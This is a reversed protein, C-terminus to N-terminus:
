KARLVAVTELKCTCPFMDFIVVKEICFKTCLFKLDRTLTSFNCSVYVVTKVGCDLLLDLVKGKCGERAPDLVVVDIFDRLFISPLEEEVKGCVNHVNNLNEMLAAARQHASKQWEIGYVFKAKEAILRTLVGQGSYANVVRKQQTHQLVFDYLKKAMEDNIQNFASVDTEAEFGAYTKCFKKKGSLWFLQTENSELVEGFAFFVSFGELLQLNKVNKLVKQANKDFLFCIAVDAEIKKVYVSQLQKFNNERLFSEIKPLAELLKEDAIPCAKVEFFQRSKQKFYGLKGDRVELKIKNRYAFRNGSKEFGIEGFFEVKALEKKLMDLKLSKEYEYDCHLFACGGCEEFHPCEAEIRQKSRKEIEVAKGLLFSSSNKTIEVLVVEDPLTKPVFIVKGNVKGVGSGEYTVDFIEVKEKM